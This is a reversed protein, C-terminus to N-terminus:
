DIFLYYSYPIACITPVILASSYTRLGHFRRISAYYLCLAILLSANASATALLTPIRDGLAFIVCGIAVLLTAAQWIRAAPRLSSPLDALVATLVGGNALVVITVTIYASQTDM